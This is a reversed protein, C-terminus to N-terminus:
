TGMSTRFNLQLLDHVHLISVLFVSRLILDADVKIIDNHM